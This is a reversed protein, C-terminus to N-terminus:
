RKRPARIAMLKKRAESWPVTKVKGARIDKLRREVEKKWAAEVVEPNEEPGLSLTELLRIALRHQEDPKLKLAEQYLKDEALKIRKM